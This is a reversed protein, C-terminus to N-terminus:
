GSYIVPVAPTVVVKTLEEHGHHRAVLLSEVQRDDTWVEAKTLADLILKALNDIDGRWQREVLTITVMVPGKAKYHRQARFQWALAEEHQGSPSWVTVTADNTRFRPRAKPRPRGPVVFVQPELDHQDHQRIPITREDGM